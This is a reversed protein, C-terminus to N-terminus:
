FPMKSLMMNRIEPVWLHEVKSILLLDLLSIARGELIIELYQTVKSNNCESRPLIRKILWRAQWLREMGM